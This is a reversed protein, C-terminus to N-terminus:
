PKTFKGKRVDAFISVMQASADTYVWKDCKLWTNAKEGECREDLKWETRSRELNETEQMM